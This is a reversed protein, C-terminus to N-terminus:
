MLIFKRNKFLKTMTNLLIIILYIINKLTPIGHMEFLYYSCKFILTIACSHLSYESISLSM